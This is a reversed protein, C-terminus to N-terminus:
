YKTQITYWTGAASGAAAKYVRDTEIGVPGGKQFKFFVTNTPTGNSQIIKAEYQYYGVYEFDLKDCMKSWSNSGVIGDASLGNASQWSKVTTETTAGFIGDNALSSSYNYKVVTQLARVYNDQDNVRKIPYDNFNAYQALATSSFVLIISITLFIAFFTKSKM